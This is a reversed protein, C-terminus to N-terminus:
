LDEEKVEKAPKNDVAADTKPWQADKSTDKLNLMPCRSSVPIVSTTPVDNSSLIVIM